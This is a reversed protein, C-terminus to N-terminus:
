YSAHVEKSLRYLKHWSIDLSCVGVIHQKIENHNDYPSYLRIPQLALGDEQPGKGLLQESLEM